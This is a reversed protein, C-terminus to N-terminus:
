SPSKSREARARLITEAVDDRSVLATPLRLKYSVTKQGARMVLIVTELEPCCAGECEIENVSVADEDRLRLQERVWGKVRASAERDVEDFRHAGLGLLHKFSKIVEDRGPQPVGKREPAALPVEPL